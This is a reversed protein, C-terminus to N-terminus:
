GGKPAAQHQFLPLVGPVTSPPAPDVDVLGSRLGPADQVFWMDIIRRWGASALEVRIGEVGV